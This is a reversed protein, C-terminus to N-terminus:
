KVQGGDPRVELIRMMEHERKERNDKIEDFRKSQEERRADGTRAYLQLLGFNAAYNDRDIEVAHDLYEAADTYNRTLVCIQGLEALVDANDARLALSQKLESISDDLHREERAIRGLYFHAGASTKGDMAAQKLWKAAADYDKARFYTTGLALPGASDLPRLSHYKELYPLAETPDHDFSVVTGMQLIYEPNDPALKVAEGIAKRAEVLLNMKVCIMGFEYPLSADKPKMDRAHALYGLAGMYDKSAEAVRALDILLEVAHSDAVFARELTARAPVLKGETEQALGLIRLGTSSLPQRAGAAAFIAEILDARRGARLAPLVAMADQETLDSRAALSAAAQDAAEKHGLAAEDACILEEVGIQNHAEKGLKAVFELSRAYERSWMLLVASQYNAEANSPEMRLAKEYLRLTEIREKPNDAATRMNVRGLNIYASVLKPSHQIAASFAKRALDVHGQQIEVVGLLNEIGGDAPFQKTAVAILKRVGDLDNDVIHQQITLVTKRYSEGTHQAYSPVALIACVLLLMFMKCVSDIDLYVTQPM